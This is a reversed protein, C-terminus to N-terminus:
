RVQGRLCLQLGQCPSAIVSPQFFLVPTRRPLRKYLSWSQSLTEEEPASDCESGVAAFSEPEALERTWERVARAM